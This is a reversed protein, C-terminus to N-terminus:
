IHPKIFKIKTKCSIPKVLVFCLFKCRDDILGKYVFELGAKSFSTETVSELNTDDFVDSFM